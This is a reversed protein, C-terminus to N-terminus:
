QRDVLTPGPATVAAQVQYSFAGRKLDAALTIPASGGNLRARYVQTAELVRMVYDRTESFPICEIFDLPDASSGRPDGCLSTWQIPRGPGANYAAAAMVYSGSFQNVLQGLYTSGVRINYDPDDLRGAGLGAKRAVGLATAPMLQMMGRAGSGSRAQPDFSSEQRTIGLVLAAEPANFGLSPTLVPYGREPLIFGRKAANRVVRMSLEQDGTGHAIDFLMAEDAGGPLCDALAAVFAHFSDRAGIGIMLRAARIEGRAEFAARVEPPTEPDKGLVLTAAGGRTAALQGYFTTTFQAAQGFYIQAAVVDGQADASRGRWYLARSQTLPSIGVGQLKEFAQDALRPDKLRSLAIWGAYFQAEAAERGFVLGSHAAVAYAGANDGARLAAGVLAGRRWLREAAAENPLAEPLYNILALATNIDGRDFLWVVREYALGPRVQDDPPLANIMAQADSARRRIAMRARAIAQENPPLLRLMDQVATGHAGYLLLDTRAIHDEARLLDSFQALVREQTDEDCVLGRWALRIVQAAEDRRGTAFLAAGLAVAGPMTVPRDSAFWTIVAQAPLRSRNILKEAAVRRRAARPWGALDRLALDAEAWSLSDPATDALAWLAIKLSLPDNMRVMAARIRSGEGYKAGELVGMISQAENWPGGAVVPTSPMQSPPVAIPTTPASTTTPATVIDPDAMAATAMLLAGTMLLGRRIGIRVM